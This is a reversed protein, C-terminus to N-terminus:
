EASDLNNNRFYAVGWNQYMNPYANFISYAKQFDVIALKLVSSKRLSDIITDTQNVLMGAHYTIM